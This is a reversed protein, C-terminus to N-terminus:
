MKVYNFYCVSMVFECTFWHINSQIYLTELVKYKRWIKLSQLMFYLQLNSMIFFTIILKTQINYFVTYKTSIFEIQKIICELNWYCKWIWHKWSETIHCEYCQSNTDRKWKSLFTKNCLLKYFEALHKDPM